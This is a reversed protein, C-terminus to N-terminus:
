GARTRRKLANEPFSVVTNRWGKGSKGISYVSKGYERVIELISRTIDADGMKLGYLFCGFVDNM